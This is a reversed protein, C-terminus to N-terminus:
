STKEAKKGKQIKIKTFRNRDLIEDVVAANIAAKFICHLLQVINPNMQKLLRNIFVRKYTTKDLEALKYKGLLPKFYKDIVFKRHERTSRKWENKHTEYWIDLWESVTLNSKEVQKIDGNLIATKVELLARYAENESKFGQKYKERRKGLADDYRHRYCWLKEKKANYYYYLEKDKKTKYLKM